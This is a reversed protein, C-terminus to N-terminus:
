TDVGAHSRARSMLELVDADTTQAFDQYWWAVAQFSAPPHLCIVQDVLDALRDRTDQACVPVALILRAPAHQAVARVAAEATVGTALGDDVVIVTTGRLEPLPLDGRYKRIRRQVEEQARAALARMQDASVGLDAAADAVVADELGEAVAGIGFEEHGPAGIKRAVLVELRAGLVPAIEAAVPVGGRPLALVVIPSPLHEVVLRSALQQGADARHKFRIGM